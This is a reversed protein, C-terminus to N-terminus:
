RLHLPSLRLATPSRTHSPSMSFLMDENARGSPRVDGRATGFSPALTSAAGAGGKPRATYPTRHYTTV